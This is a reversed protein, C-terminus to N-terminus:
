IVRTKADDVANDGIQLVDMYFKYIKSLTTM